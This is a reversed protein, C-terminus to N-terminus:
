TLHWSPEARMRRAAALSGKNKSLGAVMAIMTANDQTLLVPALFLSVKIANSAVTLSQRLHANASVGGVLFISRVKQHVAARITKQVLVDVVAQEFSAAVDRKFPLTRRKRKEVLYRVATKLGAFSFEDDGSTIMPRPFDFASRSGLAALQSIEPGGPYPLGLLAAVKDFAEGAADDRTKGLVHYQGFKKVLVLETHGGSVVLALAPLPPPKKAAHAIGEIPWVSAIHGEIHNIGLIPIHHLLSLLRATDIGVSLAPSLGPGQTVAILDVRTLTMRARSLAAQLTPIITVTHERAAVEPIVGGYRAHTKIQSYHIHSLSRLRLGKKEIISVATDDCSTEIGLIIMHTTYWSSPPPIGSFM